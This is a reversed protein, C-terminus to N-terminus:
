SRDKSACISAIFASISATVATGCLVWVLMIRQQEEYVSLVHECVFVVLPPIITPFVNIASCIFGSCFEFHSSPFILTLSFWVLGHSLTFGTGLVLMCLVPSIADGLMLLLLYAFALLACSFSLVLMRTHAGTPYKDMLIGLISSCIVMQLEPILMYSDAKSVSINYTSQLYKSGMFWFPVMSGYMLAAALSYFYFVPPLEHLPMMIKLKDMFTSNTNSGGEPYSAIPRNKQINTLEIAALDDRSHGHSATDLENRDSEEIVNDNTVMGASPDDESGSVSQYEIDAHDHSRVKKVLVSTATTQYTELLWGGVSCVCGAWGMLAAFALAASVDHLMRYIAPSVVFCIVSGLRLFSNILGIATSWSDAGFFPKLVIVPMTDIIEYMIGAITRGVFVCEISRAYYGGWFITHGIAAALCVVFLCKSPQGFFKIAIGAFLPSVVNPGFYMSNILAYTSTSMPFDSEIQKELTGVVDRTYHNTFIILGVVMLTVWRMHHGTTLGTPAASNNSPRTSSTASTHAGDKKKTRGVLGASILSDAEGSAEERASNNYKHHDTPSFPMVRRDDDDRDGDHTQPHDGTDGSARASLPSFEFHDSM